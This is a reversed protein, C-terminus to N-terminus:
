YDDEEEHRRRERGEDRHREVEHHRDEGQQRAERDRRRRKQERPPSRSRREHGTTSPAAKAGLTRQIVEQMIRRIEEETLNPSPTRTKEPTRTRVPTRPRRGAKPAPGLRDRIQRKQSEKERSVNRPKKSTHDVEEVSSDLNQSRTPQSPELFVRRRSDQVPTQIDTPWSTFHCQKSEMRFLLYLESLKSMVETPSFADHNAAIMRLREIAQDKARHNTPFNVEHWKQIFKGPEVIKAQYSIHVLTQANNKFFVLHSPKPLQDPRFPLQIIEKQGPDGKIRYTIIPNLVEATLNMKKLTAFPDRRIMVEKAKEQIQKLFTEDKYFMETGLVTVKSTHMQLSIRHGNLDIHRLTASVLIKVPRPRPSAFKAKKGNMPDDTTKTMFAQREDESLSLKIAEEDIPYGSIFDSM